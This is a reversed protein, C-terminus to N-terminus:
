LKSELVDAIVAMNGALTEIAEAIGRMDSEVGAIRDAYDTRLPQDGIIGM